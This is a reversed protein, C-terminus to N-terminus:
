CVEKVDLITANNLMPLVDDLKPMNFHSRKNVLNLDCM